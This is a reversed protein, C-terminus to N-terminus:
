PISSAWPVQTRVCHRAKEATTYRYLCSLAHADGSSLTPNLRYQFPVQSVIRAQSRIYPDEFTAEFAQRSASSHLLGMAQTSNIYCYNMVSHPDYIGVIRATTGISETARPYCNRAEARIHEHRLGLVHGLEHLFVHQLSSWNFNRARYEAPSMNVITYNMGRRKYGLSAIGITTASASQSLKVRDSFLFLAVEEAEGRCRGWGNLSVGTRAMSIERDVLSQLEQQQSSTFSFVEERKIKSFDSTANKIRRADEFSGWCVTIDTTPWAVSPEIVSAATPLASLFMAVFLVRM